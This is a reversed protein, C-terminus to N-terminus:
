IILHQAIKSVLIIQIPLTIQEAYALVTIALKIIIAHVSVSGTKFFKVNTPLVLLKLAQVNAMTAINIPRVHLYVAELIIVLKVNLLMVIVYEVKVFKILIANILVFISLAQNNTVHQPTVLVYEKVMCVFKVKRHVCKFALVVKIRSVLLVIV